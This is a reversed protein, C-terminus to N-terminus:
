NKSVPRVIARILDIISVEDFRGKSLKESLRKNVDLREENIKHLVILIERGQVAIAYSIAQLRNEIRSSATPNPFASKGTRVARVCAELQRGVEVFPIAIEHEISARVDAGQELVRVLRVQLAHNYNDNWELVSRDYEKLRDEIQALNESRLSLLLRYARIHRRSSVKVFEDFLARLEIYRKEIDSVRQQELWNRQQWSRALTAGLYAGLVLLVASKFLDWLGEM